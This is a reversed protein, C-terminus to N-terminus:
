WGGQMNVSVIWARNTYDGCSILDRHVLLSGLHFCCQGSPSHVGAPYVPIIVTLVNAGSLNAHMKLYAIKLSIKTISLLPIMKSIPKLHTECCIVSSSIARSIAKHWWAACWCMPWHQGMDIDGYPMDLGHHSLIFTHWMTIWWHKCAGIERNQFYYNSNIGKVNKM